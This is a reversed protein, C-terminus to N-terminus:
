KHMILRVFEEYNIRGKREKGSENVIDNIQGDTLTDGLVSRVKRLDEGSIFGDGDRDLVKFTEILDEENDPENMKRAMLNLFEPFDVTGNGDTDVENIIDDLETKTLNQGLESM